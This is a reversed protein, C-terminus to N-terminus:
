PAYGAARLMRRLDALLNKDVDKGRPPHIVEREGGLSRTAGAAPRM